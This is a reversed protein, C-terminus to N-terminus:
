KLNEPRNNLGNEDDHMCDAKPFPKPGNFAECVVQAVSMGRHHVWYKYRAKRGKGVLVGFTPHTGGYIRVGGNPMKGEHAEVRIRGFSSASIGPRSPIPKWIEIEEEM